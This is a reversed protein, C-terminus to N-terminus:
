GDDALQLNLQDQGPYRHNLSCMHCVRVSRVNGWMDVVWECGCIAHFEVQLFQRGDEYGSTVVASIQNDM